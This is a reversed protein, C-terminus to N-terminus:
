NNLLRFFSNVTFCFNVFVNYTQKTYVKNQEKNTLM